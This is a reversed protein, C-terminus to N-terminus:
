VFSIFGMMGSESGSEINGLGLTGGDQEEDREPQETEAPRRGAMQRRLGERVDGLGRTWSGTRGELKSNGKGARVSEPDKDTREKERLEIPNIM